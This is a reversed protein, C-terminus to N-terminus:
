PLVRWDPAYPADGSKLPFPCDAARRAPPRSSAGLLSFGHTDRRALPGAKSRDGPKGAKPRALSAVWEIFATLRRTKAEDAGYSRSGHYDIKRKAM